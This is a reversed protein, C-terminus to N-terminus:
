ITRDFVVHGSAMLSAASTSAAKSTTYVHFIHFFAGMSKTQIEPKIAVWSLSVQHSAHPYLVYVHSM